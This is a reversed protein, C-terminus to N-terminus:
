RVGGGLVRYLTVLNSERTLRASILTQQATFLTRQADLLTLYTDVGREYRAQSLKLSATAAEVLAEQAEIQQVATGRQALADATERFATQIAEEYQAVAVDRQTKALKLNALNKGGSFIPLTISPAFSWTGSGPTFLKDLYLSESGTSGTLTITPFFAARAAGINANYGRLQHEAQLVDPRNLLVTSDLGAPVDALTPLTKDQGQPLLSEPTDAGVVLNLANLDQAALTIDALTDSRAQDAATEAQRVDLQSVIGDNFRAQTIRLTEQDAKLTDQATKLKQRDAGLTAYDTAVESILSIQAARRAEEVSLLNEAAQRTLSRIRGWVDADYIRVDRKGTVVTAGTTGGAAGGTTAGGTASGAGTAAGSLGKASRESVGSGTAAVTPFLASRQVRYQARAEEINLISVRLDRNNKLALDIVAKLNADTFFDRWALDAAKGDETPKYADGQPWTAPAPDAPRHYKPALTICGSLLAGAALALLLPKSSRM